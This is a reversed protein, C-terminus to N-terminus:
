GSKLLWLEQMIIKGRIIILAVLGLPDYVKSLDSLIIRKSLKDTHLPQGYFIFIDSELKWVLGLVKVPSLNIDVVPSNNSDSTLTCPLLEPRNGSWKRLSFEGLKCLENVQHAIEKAEDITDAGGFIDDVYRGKTMPLIAKPFKPGDDHVLQQLCRLALFPACSLGYTVTTLCFDVPQQDPGFWIIRQYNWDEPHVAIQRFMKEIDASFLYRHIRLWLLIDAIDTQLKAGSHLIENLSVGSSTRSSGNFVVRIKSNDGEQKLIGHHPLYYINAFNDPLTAEVMHGLARYEQIFNEYLRKYPLDSSLRKTIRWLCRLATERSDGLLSSPSKLPLRVIFRGSPNRTHTSLFHNECDVEDPSLSASISSPLDEQTWFRALLNHLDQDTSCHFDIAESSNDNLSGSPGSLIWGFITKQAIPEHQNAKILGKLIISGYNDSGIIIDVPGCRYFEPDALPLNKIHPWSRSSVPFSPLKVLLRSLVFTNFTCSSLKDHLSRLRLTVLGRTKGFHSGGIGVLPIAAARRPLKLRDVVEESVFSLESGQDILLRVPYTARNEHQIVARSTALFIQRRPLSSFGQHHACTTM